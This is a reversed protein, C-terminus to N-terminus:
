QVRQSGGFELAQVEQLPDKGLPVFEPSSGSAHARDAQGQVVIYAIGLGHRRAAIM